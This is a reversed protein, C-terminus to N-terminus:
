KGIIERLEERTIKGFEAKRHCSPCLCVVNHLFHADERTHDESEIFWRVPIIHHVDPNQGLEEQTTRCILCQHNDRAVAQKRLNNWGAGYPRSTGGRWNPHGPGSFEESLWERRCSEGCVTVSGINSPYREVTRGCVTCEVSRKGGNWRPNESGETTPPEQWNQTRVCEACFRGKKESPFYEFETDCLECAGKTKPGTYDPDGPGLRASHQELCSESCYKKEYPSHFDTKCGACTRNSLKTGHVRAHHVRLGRLSDFGRNCAPCRHETM